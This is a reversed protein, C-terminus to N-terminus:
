RSGCAGSTYSEVLPNKCADCSNSFTQNVPNCPAKICQINVKACVPQYVQACVDAKRQAPLCTIPARAVPRGNSSYHLRLYFSAISVSALLLILVIFKKSM